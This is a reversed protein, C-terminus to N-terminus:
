TSRRTRQVVASWTRTRAANGILILPLFPFPFLVPDPFDAAKFDTDALHRLLGNKGVSGIPEARLRAEGPGVRDEQPTGKHATLRLRAEPLAMKFPGSRQPVEGRLRRTNGARWTDKHVLYLLGGSLCNSGKEIGRWGHRRIKKSDSKDEALATALWM